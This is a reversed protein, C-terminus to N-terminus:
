DGGALVVDDLHGSTHELAQVLSGATGRLPWLWTLSYRRFVGPQSDHRVSARGLGDVVGQDYLIGNAHVLKDVLSADPPRVSM